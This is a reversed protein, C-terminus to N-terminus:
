RGSARSPVGNWRVTHASSAVIGYAAVHLGRRVASERLAVNHAKSGTFHQLVNGFQDPEVVDAHGGLLRHEGPAEAGSPRRKFSPRTIGIEPADGFVLANRRM